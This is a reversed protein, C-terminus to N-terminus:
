DLTTGSKRYLGGCCPGPLYQLRSPVIPENAGSAREGPINLEHLSIDLATPLSVGLLEDVFAEMTLLIVDPVDLPTRCYSSLEELSPVPPYANSGYTLVQSKNDGAAFTPSGNM